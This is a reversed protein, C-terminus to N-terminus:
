KEKYDGSPAELNETEWYFINFKGLRYVLKSKFYLLLYFMYM